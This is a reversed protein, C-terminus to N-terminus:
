GGVMWGGGDDGADQVKISVVPKGPGGPMIEESSRLKEMAAFNRDQGLKIKM